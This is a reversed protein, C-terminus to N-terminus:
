ITARLQEYRLADEKPWTRTLLAQNADLEGDDTREMWQARQKWYPISTSTNNRFIERISEPHCIAVVQQDLLGSHGTPSVGSIRILFLSM